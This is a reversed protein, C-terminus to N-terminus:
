QREYITYDIPDDKAKTSQYYDDYDLQLTGTKKYSQMASAFTEDQSMYELFSKDPGFDKWDWIILHFPKWKNLDEALMVAYRHFYSHYKEPSLPGSEGKDMNKQTKILAPLFWLSSFRSAHFTGTYYAAEHMVGMNKNFMFFSCDQGQPCAQILQAPPKQRFEHHDPYNFNIPLLLYTVTIACALTLLSCLYKSQIERGLVWFFLWPIVACLFAIAPSLHYFFGMKQVAYPILSMLACSTLFLILFIQQRPIQVFSSILFIAVSLLTIWMLGKLALEINGIALYLTVIDPLMVFIFDPFAIFILALYSLVAIALSLFDADIVVSLRRQSIARHALLITPILGHHPKLLILIAGLALTPITWGKPRPLHYTLSVQILIFPVLGLALLHDREGFYISTLVTVGLLYGASIINIEVSQFIKWASLIKHVALTSLVTLIFTQTFVAYHLPIHLVSKALVPLIYVLMSLPPNVEFAVDSMKDGALVRQLADCLWLIDSHTAQQSRFYFWPLLALILFAWFIRTATLDTFPTKVM